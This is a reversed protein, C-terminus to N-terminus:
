GKGGGAVGLGVRGGRVGLGVSGGVGGGGGGAVGLGVRGGRVGRGTLKGVLWSCKFITQFGLRLKVLIGHKKKQKM